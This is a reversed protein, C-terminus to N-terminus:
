IDLMTNSNTRKIFMSMDIIEDTEEGLDDQTISHFAMAASCAYIKGDFGKLYTIM